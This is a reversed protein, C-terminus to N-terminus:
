NIQYAIRVYRLVHLKAINCSEENFLDKIDILLIILIINIEVLLVM